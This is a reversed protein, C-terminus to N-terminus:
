KHTWGTNVAGTSASENVQPASNSIDAAKEGQEEVIPLVEHGNIKILQDRNDEAVFDVPVPVFVVPPPVTNELTKSWYINAPLGYREKLIRCRDRDSELFPVSPNVFPSVSCTFAKLRGLLGVFSLSIQEMKYRRYTSFPGALLKALGNLLARLLTAKNEWLLEELM